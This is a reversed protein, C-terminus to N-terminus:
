LAEEDVENGCIGSIDQLNTSLRVTDWVNLKVRTGKAYPLNELSIITSGLEV